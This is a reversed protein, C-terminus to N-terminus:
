RLDVGAQRLTRTLAAVIDPDVDGTGYDFNIVAYWPVGAKSALMRTSWGLRLRAAQCQTGTM